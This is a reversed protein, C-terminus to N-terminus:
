SDVMDGFVQGPHGRDTCRTGARGHCVPVWPPHGSSAIGAVTPSRTVEYSVARTDDRGRRVPVWPADGCRAIAVNAPCGNARV